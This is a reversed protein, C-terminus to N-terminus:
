TYVGFELRRLFDEVLGVGAPTTLLDIPRQQELGIAPREMWAEAEAQSGFVETAEALIEAFKWTRASQESSLPKDTADRRRQFTRLSMGTAKELSVPNHLVHLRDVLHTLAAGPLGDSLLRHAEIPNNLRRHLVRFGGLLDAVRQTINGERESLATNLKGM